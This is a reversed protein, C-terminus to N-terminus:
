RASCFMQFGFRHGSGRAPRTVLREFRIGHGKPNFCRFLKYDNSPKLHRESLSSNGRYCQWERPSMPRAYPAKHATASVRTISINYSSVIMITGTFMLHVPDANHHDVVGRTAPPRHPTSPTPRATHPPRHPTSPTPHVTHPRIVQTLRSSVWQRGGLEWIQAINEVNKSISRM